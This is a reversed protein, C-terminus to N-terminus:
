DARPKLGARSRLVERVFGAAAAVQAVAVLGGCGHAAAHRMLGARARGSVNVYPHKRRLWCAGRGYCVHQRWFGAFSLEHAHDVVADPAYLLPRGSALWRACLDRDEAAAFPWTADFGGIEEFASKRMAINSSAFFPPNATAFFDVISQTAAAYPNGTLTNRTHGGILAEPYAPLREDLRRLWDPAPACDDDTFALFEGAACAAGANRAAAPGRQPTQQVLRVGAPVSVSCGDSVVIAEYDGRPYELSLVATLCTRLQRPRAHTPIVVSFRM